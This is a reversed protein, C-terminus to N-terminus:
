KDAVLNMTISPAEGEMIIKKIKKLFKYFADLSMPEKGTYEYYYGGLEGDTDPDFWTLKEQEIFHNQELMPRVEKFWEASGYVKIELLM